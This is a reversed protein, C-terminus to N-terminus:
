VARAVFAVEQGWWEKFVRLRETRERALERGVDTKIMGELRLLKDDFHQMSEDLSRGTKAGGYTFMRGIGVAGIADLRDADQVVALEPYESIVATVHAPNKIESSYSVNQCITQIKKAM